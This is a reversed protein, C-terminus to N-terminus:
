SLQIQLEVKYTKGGNSQNESIILEHKGPYLLALRNKANNIGLGGSNMAGPENVVNNMVSMSLHQNKLDIQLDIKSTQSPNVGYKFANEIFPILLMPAIKEKGYLGDNINISCSVQTNETTRLQQLEIYNQIYEIEKNLLIYDAQSDNLGYRMLGGLRAIGDATKVGNEDLSLAYLSNLTNFLFHPDVQSRLFALEMKNREAQLAEIRNLNIVWDRTFRYGTSFFMITVFSGLVNGSNMFNSQIELWLDAQENPFFPSIIGIRLVESAFASLVVLTCYSIWKKRSLYRPILGFANFYFLGPIYLVYFINQVKLYDPFERWTSLETMLLLTLLFSWGLLHLILEGNRAGYSRIKALKGSMRKLKNDLSLSNSLIVKTKRIFGWYLSYPM